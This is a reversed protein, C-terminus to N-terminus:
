AADATASRKPCRRPTPRRSSAAAPKRPSGSSCRRACRRMSSSRTARRCACTCRRQQGAGESRAHRHRPNRVARIRGSQVGGRIRRGARRDMGDARRDDQRLAVHHASRRASREGRRVRHRASRGHLQVAEGPEVRDHGTTLNVQDPVGDVLWRVLRRWFMAHTMDEVPVKPDMQWAWSDQIPMAITKGRGYRQYALVIQDQRRIDPRRRAADHRGAQGRSVPNVTSVQPMDNWKSTSADETEAIQTVPFAAGARTPRVSLEAFYSPQRTGRRHRGAARRRGAHRGLRRRCVIAPRRADAPRRRAQEVFDALM